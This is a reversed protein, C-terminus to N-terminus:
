RQRVKGDGECSLLAEAEHVAFKAIFGQPKLEATLKQQNICVKEVFDGTGIEDRMAAEPAKGPASTVTSGAIM